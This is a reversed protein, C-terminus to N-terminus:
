VSLEAVSPIFRKLEPLCSGCNTGCKLKDGLEDVSCIGSEVAKEIQKSGVQYCSCVIEGKDEINAPIGVLIALRDKVSLPTNIVLRSILWDAMIAEPQPHLYVLLTLKQSVLKALRMQQTVPNLYELWEIKEALEQNQEVDISKLSAQTQGNPWVVEYHCGQESPVQCWYLCDSLVLPVASVILGYCIDSVAELQVRAHKSEPQGSLPDVVQPILNSIVSANAFQQTWHIPAFVNGPAVARSVKAKLLAEGYLSTLRVLAKDKIGLRKADKPHIEVYPQATHKALSTADGTRTMTHWQDRVRGTNLTFPWEQSAQSKPLVPTIAIFRARGDPTFFHGDGFMRKTGESKGKPVPWQVPALADYEAQTIQSFHGIDFDRKGNNEFTSLAAHEAFIEHVDQYSFAEQFGLSKAVECIAWWDHKAEGPAPLLGRQRSICRESNTVTGDKESWGTAPFLVDAMATTDTHAKCDSVIVLDCKELARRVQATDPLSVMPNTSMIWVVKVKGEEMAQFLDVAKLGNETAMNPAQWFRQVLGQAGPTAFDMHAALQNALGGVERGGMANPQGTISFPGAGEKGIRGTALHCNIIANCKDVGSSSQNVGQSYFTVTKATNRWWSALRELDQASIECFGATFSLNPTSENAQALAVDFGTTHNDIFDHDLIGAQASDSVLFSFIAADSGPKIALHLDAIDCTATERPDIVVVKMSPRQKKAAAIRQYLIPHTWAANSGVMILLDCLELDEYNCPVTDSGFARKYGVVASAMCLRSNTDVNATGIFGKALKNAVYYDETLIQGSLYFAFADPGHDKIVQAIKASVTEIALEWDVPQGDVMPTLLRDDSQITEALSSGKVCLRGFNAPHDVDGSVPPVAETASRPLTLNVGCGVGCYPCTTKGSTVTKIATTM